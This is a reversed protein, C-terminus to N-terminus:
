RKEGLKGLKDAAQAAPKVQNCRQEAKSALEVLTSRLVGFRLNTPDEGFDKLFALCFEEGFERFLVDIAKGCCDEVLQLGLFKDLIRAAEDQALEKHNTGCADCMVARNTGFCQNNWTRDSGGVPKRFMRHKKTKM